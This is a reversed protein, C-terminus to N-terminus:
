YEGDCTPTARDRVFWPSQEVGEGDRRINSIALTEQPAAMEARQYEYAASLFLRPVHPDGRRRDIMTQIAKKGEVQAPTLRPICIPITPSVLQAAIEDILEVRETADANQWEDVFEAIREAIRYIQGQWM